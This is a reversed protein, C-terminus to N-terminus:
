CGLDNCYLQRLALLGGGRFNSGEGGRKKRSKDVGGAGEKAFKMSGGGGRKEMKDYGRKRM